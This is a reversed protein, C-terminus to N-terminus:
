HMDAQKQLEHIIKQFSKKPDEAQIYEIGRFGDGQKRNQPPEFSEILISEMASIIDQLEYNDPIEQLEGNEKVGRFGFWSFRNWRTKLRDKTHARLRAGLSSNTARGVYIIDRFDYLLYIGTQEAMNVPKAGDLEIGLIRSSKWDVLSREWYMGLAMIPFELNDNEDSATDPLIGGSLQYTGSSVKEFIKSHKTLSASVTISPTASKTKLLGQRLIQDAIKKYHLPKGADKLVKEIAEKWTYQKHSM